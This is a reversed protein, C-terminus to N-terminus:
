ETGILQFWVGHSSDPHINCKLYGHLSEGEGKVKGRIKNGKAILEDAVKRVHDVRWAVHFVGPGHKAMHKAIATDPSVPETIQIQTEGIDYHAEKGNKNTELHNPKLGFNTDFYEIMAELDKVAYHVHHVYQLM